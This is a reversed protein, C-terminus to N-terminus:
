VKTLTKIRWKKEKQSIIPSKYNTKVVNNSVIEKEGELISTNNEPCIFVFDFDTAPVTDYSQEQLEISDQIQDFTQEEPITTRTNNCSTLVIAKLGFLFLKQM